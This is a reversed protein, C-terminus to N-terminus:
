TKDEWQIRRHLVVREIWRLAYTAWLERRAMPDVLICPMGSRTAGLIDTLLQDGIVLCQEPPLGLRTQAQQFGRRLPKGAQYVAEPIDLLKQLKRARSGKSNSVMCLAFGRDAADCLWDAVEPSVTEGHWPVLTNDLDLLLARYGRRWLAEVDLDYIRHATEYQWHRSMGDM